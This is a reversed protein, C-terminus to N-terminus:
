SSKEASYNLAIKVQNNFFYIFLSLVLIRAMPLDYGIMQTGSNIILIATMWLLIVLFSDKYPNKNALKFKIKLCLYLIKAVGWYIIFFGFLGTNLLLNQYGIHANGKERYLDSFGAGFMISSEKFAAMVKPAKKNFRDATGGGTIDGRIMLEVTSIRKYAHSFQNKLLTSSLLLVIAGALVLSNKLTIKLMRKPMFLFLLIYTLIFAVFWTRTATIFISTFSIVNVVLLYRQNFHKKNNFLFYLSGYFTLMLIHGMEIPRTEVEGFVGQTSLVAPKFLAILQHGFIMSYFQLSFAIFALPLILKFFNVFESEDAFLFYISYFFSLNVIVQYLYSFGKFSIGFFFSIGILLIFYIGLSRFYDAIFRLPKYSVKKKFAKIFATCIFLQEFSISVGAALPYIPLRVLDERLGGSFLGGPTEILILFFAIWLANRKSRYFLVCFLPFLFKSFSNPIFYVLVLACFVMIALNLFSNRDKM